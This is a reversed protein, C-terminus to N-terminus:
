FEEVVIDSSWQSLTATTYNHWGMLTSAKETGGMDSVNLIIAYRDADIVDSAAMVDVFMNLIEFTKLIAGWPPAVKGIWDFFLEASGNFMMEGHGVDNANEVFADYQEPTLYYSLCITHGPGTYSIAGGNPLDYTYSDASAQEIGYKAYINKEVIPQIILEYEDYLGLADQAELQSYISGMLRDMESEIELAAMQQVAAEYEVQGIEAAFAPSALSVCLIVAM